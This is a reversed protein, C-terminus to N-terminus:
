RWGAGARASGGAGSGRATSEGRRRPSGARPRRTPRSAPRCEGRGQGHLLEVAAQGVVVPGFAEGDDDHDVGGVPEVARGLGRLQHRAPPADPLRRNLREIAVEHDCHRGDDAGRVEAQHRFGVQDARHRGGIEILGQNLRRARRRGGHAARAEGARQIHTDLDLRGPAQSRGARIGADRGVETIEREDLREAEGRIRVEDMRIRGRQRGVIVPAERGFRPSGHHDHLSSPGRRGHDPKGASRLPLGPIERLLGLQEVRAFGQEDELEGEGVEAERRDQSRCGPV